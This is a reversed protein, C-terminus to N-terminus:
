IGNGISRPIEVSGIIARVSIELPDWCIFEGRANEKKWERFGFDCRQPLNPETNSSGDRVLMSRDRAQFSHRLAREEFIGRVRQGIALVRADRRLTIVEEPGDPHETFVHD